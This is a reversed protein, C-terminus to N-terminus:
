FNCPYNKKVVCVHKCNDSSVLLEGELLWNPIGKLLAHVTQIKTELLSLILVSSKSFYNNEITHLELLTAPKLLETPLASYKYFSNSTKLNHQDIRRFSCTHNKAIKVQWCLNQNHITYKTNHLSYVPLRYQFTQNLTADLTALPPYRSLPWVLLFAVFDGCGGILCVVSCEVTVRSSTLPTAYLM